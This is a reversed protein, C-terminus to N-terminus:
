FYLSVSFCVFFQMLAKVQLAEHLLVLSSLIRFLNPQIKGYTHGRFEIWPCRRQFCIVAKELIPSRWKKEICFTRFKRGGVMWSTKSLFITQRVQSVWFIHLFLLSLTWIQWFIVEVSTAQIQCNLVRIVLYCNALNSLALKFMIKRIHRSSKKSHLKTSVTGGWSKKVNKQLGRSGVSNRPSKFPILIYDNSQLSNRLGGGSSVVKRMWRASYAAIHGFLYFARGIRVRSWPLNLCYEYLFCKQNEKLFM